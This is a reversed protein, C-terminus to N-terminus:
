MTPLYPKYEPLFALNNSTILADRFFHLFITSSRNNKKVFVNLMILPWKVALFLYVLPLRMELENEKYYSRVANFFVERLSIPVPVEPQLYFDAILKAPDDWGYYEFDIFILEESDKKIINHFGFDSPSLTQHKKLLTRGTDIRM